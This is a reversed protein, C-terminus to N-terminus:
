PYVITWNMQELDQLDFEYRKLIMYNDVVSDWTGTELTQADYIFYMIKGESNTLLKSEICGRYFDKKSSLADIKFHSPDITPNPYLTLTDPYNASPHFYIDSISNNILLIHDHCDEDECTTASYIIIIGITFLVLKVKRM